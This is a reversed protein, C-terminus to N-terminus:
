PIEDPDTPLGTSICITEFKQWIGTERKTTRMKRRKGPQPGTLEDWFISIM